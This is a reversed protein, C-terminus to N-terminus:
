LCQQLNKVLFLLFVTYLLDTKFLSDKRSKIGKKKCLQVFTDEFIFASIVLISKKKYIYLKSLTLCKTNM